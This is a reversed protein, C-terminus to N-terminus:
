LRASNRNREFWDITAGLGEELGTAPAYHLRQRMRAVDFLKLMQGEPMSADWVVQGTFGSLRVITQVLDRIRTPEGSSINIIESEDYEEAAHILAQAVDGAYVFDRVANGSGWVTIRDRKEERAELVKRILAPIVHSGSLSFNDHPGYMNGPVMVISNFGYQRRYSESQVILIKKAVSYPASEPQPYGDWMSEERIPNPARAPYSCGGMVCILKEVGAGFAEHFTCVNMVANRYFFDAPRDRNALIGGVHGALHFVVQPKLDFFMRRVAQQDELDYDRRTVTAFPLESRRLRECLHAGLFGGAGTVLIRKERLKM